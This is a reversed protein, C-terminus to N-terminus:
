KEKIIQFVVFQCRRLVFFSSENLFKMTLICNKDEFASGFQFKEKSKLKALSCRKIALDSGDTLLKNEWAQKITLRQPHPLSGIIQSPNQGFHAIQTEM